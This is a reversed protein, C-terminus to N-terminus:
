DPEFRGNVFSLLLSKDGGPLFSRQNKGHGEPGDNWRIMGASLIM